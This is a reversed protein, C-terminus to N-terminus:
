GRGRRRIRDACFLLWGLHAHQGTFAKLPPTATIRHRDFLGDQETIVRGQHVDSPPCAALGLLPVVPTNISTNPWITGIALGAQAQNRDLRLDVTYDAPKTDIVSIFNNKRPAALLPCTASQTTM